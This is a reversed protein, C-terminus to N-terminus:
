YKKGETLAHVMEGQNILAKLLSVDVETIVQDPLFLLLYGKRTSSHSDSPVVLVDRGDETALFSHSAQVDDLARLERNSVRFVQKEKANAQVEIETRLASRELVRLLVAEAGAASLASQAIAQLLDRPLHKRDVLSLSTDNALKKLLEIKRNISGIYSYSDVLESKARQIDSEMKRAEGERAEIHREYRTFTLIGALGFLFITFEELVVEPVGFYGRGYISPSLVAIVFFVLYLFSIWEVKGSKQQM